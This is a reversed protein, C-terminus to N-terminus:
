VWLYTHTHTHAHVTGRCPSHIHPEGQNSKPQMILRVPWSRYIFHWVDTLLFINERQTEWVYVCKTEVRCGFNVNRMYVVYVPRCAWAVSQIAIFHCNRCLGPRWNPLNIHLHLYIFSMRFVQGWCAAAWRATLWCSWWRCRRLSLLLALLEILGTMGRVHMGM